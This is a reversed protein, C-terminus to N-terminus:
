SEEFGKMGAGRGHPQVRTHARGPEKLGARVDDFIHKDLAERRKREQEEDVIRREAESPGSGWNGAGGRGSLRPPPPPANTEQQQRQVFSQNGTSHVTPPRPQAHQRISPETRGGGVEAEAAAATEPDIFNGAGGRGTRVGYVTQQQQQANDSTTASSNSTPPQQHQQQEVAPDSPLEDAPAPKQAEVDDNATQALHEEVDKQSYFNGAGGRGVKRYVDGM